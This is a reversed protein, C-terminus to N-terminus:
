LAIMDRSNMGRQVALHVHLSVFYQNVIAAHLVGRSSTVM